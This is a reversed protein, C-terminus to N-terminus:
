FVNKKICSEQRRPKPHLSEDEHNKNVLKKKTKQWKVGVVGKREVSHYSM